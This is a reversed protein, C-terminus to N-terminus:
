ERRVAKHRLVWLGFNNEAFPRLPDGLTHAEQIYNQELWRLIARGSAEDAGFGPYGDDAVMHTVVVVYDPPREQLEAVVDRGNLRLTAPMLNTIRLPHKTRTWYNLLLGEPVVLLSAGPRLRGALHRRVAEINEHGVLIQPGFGHIRDAGEGLPQTSARYNHGSLEVFPAMIVLLAVAVWGQFFRAGGAGRVLRAPGGSLLFGALWASALMAQVFGYHYIRPALAMRLLLAVAAALLFAQAWTRAAVRREAGHERRARWVVAATGVALLVPFCVGVELLPRLSWGAAMVAVAVVVAGGIRRAASSLGGLIRAVWALAGLVSIAVGGGALLRGIREAPQDAGLYSLITTSKVYAPYLLPSLFGSGVAVGAARASTVGALAAWAVGVVALWGGAVAAVWAILARGEGVELRRRGWAVALVAAGGVAIEVKTLCMLGFLVGDIMGARGLSPRWGGVQRGLLLLLLFLGHTVEHSYPALYTYNKTFNYHGLGFVGIIFLIAGAAPLFGFARRLVGHLLWVIAAFVVLNSVVLVRISVGFIEFLAAHYYSSLPGYPHVFDRGLHEGQTIRWPLYAQVGFDIQPDIWRM